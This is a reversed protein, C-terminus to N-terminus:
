IINLTILFFFLLAVLISSEKEVILLSLISSDNAGKTYKLEVKLCENMKLINNYGLKNYIYM